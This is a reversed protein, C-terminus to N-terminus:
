KNLLFKTRSTKLTRYYSYNGNFNTGLFMLTVFSRNKIFILCTKKLRAFHFESSPSTRAEHRYMEAEANPDPHSFRNERFM